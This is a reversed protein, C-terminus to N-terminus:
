LAGRRNWSTTCSSASTRLWGQPFPICLSSTLKESSLGNLVHLSQGLPPSASPITHSAGGRAARPCTKDKSIAILRHAEHNRLCSLTVGRNASKAGCMEGDAHHVPGPDPRAPQQTMSASAPLMGHRTRRFPIGASDTSSGGILPLANDANVVDSATVIRIRHM